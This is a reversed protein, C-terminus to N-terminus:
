PENGAGRDMANTLREAGPQDTSGEPLESDSKMNTTYAYLTYMSAIM